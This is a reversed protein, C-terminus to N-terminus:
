FPSAFSVEEQSNKSGLHKEDSNYQRRHMTLLSTPSISSAVSAASVGTTNNSDECSEKHTFLEGTM